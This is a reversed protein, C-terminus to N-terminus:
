VDEYKLRSQASKGLEEIRRFFADRDVNDLVEVVRGGEKEITRGASQGTVIVASQVERVRGIGENEMFVTALVDWLFYTSNTVFHVLPPCSAYAQGIFDMGEFRRLKAWRTRDANTLPVASTSELTVLQIRIGSDWVKKVAEPDWFANWEATGDHEPEAVNGEAFAGGMWVLRAIKGAIGADITLAAALDSLPGTFLLTVPSPESRLLDILDLHAPKESAIDIELDFENLIPLADITFTSLRWDKPFPHSTKATSASVKFTPPSRAFKNIIRLSASLAPELYSDAPVVGVGILEVTPMQLLLFLSVLDDINGDHNFYVRM